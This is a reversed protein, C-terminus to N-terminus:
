GRLGWRGRLTCDSGSLTYVSVSSLEIVSQPLLHLIQDIDVESSHKALNAITCHPVFPFDSPRFNIGSRKIKEHLVIIQGDAHCRAHYLKTNPFHEVRDFTVSIPPTNAAIKELIQFVEAQSENQEIPGIGGSGAVTIEVPLNARWPDVLRRMELIKETWDSAPLDLVVYTDKEFDMEGCIM